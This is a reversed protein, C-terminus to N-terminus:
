LKPELAKYKLASRNPFEKKGKLILSHFLNSGSILVRSKEHLSGCFFSGIKIIGETFLM